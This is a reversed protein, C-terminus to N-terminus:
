FSARLSTSSKGVEYPHIASNVNTDTVPYIGLHNVQECVTVTWITVMHHFVM